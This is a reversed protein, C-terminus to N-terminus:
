ANLKVKGIDDSADSSMSFTSAFVAVDRGVVLKASLKFLPDGDAGSAGDTPEEVFPLMSPCDTGGEDENEKAFVLLDDDESTLEFSSPGVV